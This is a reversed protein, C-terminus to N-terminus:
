FRLITFDSFDNCFRMNRIWDYTINFVQVKYKIAILQAHDHRLMFFFCFFLLFHSTIMLKDYLSM